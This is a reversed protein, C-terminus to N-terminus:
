PQKCVAAGAGVANVANWTLNGNADQSVYGAFWMDTGSSTISTPATLPTQAVGKISVQMSPTDTGSFAVVCLLFSGAKDVVGAASKIWVTETKAPCGICDLDLRAISDSSTNSSTTQSGTTTTWDLAESNAEACNTYHCDAHNGDATRGTYSGGTKIFHTDMDTLSLWSITALIDIGGTAGGPTWTVTAVASAFKSGESVIVYLSNVGSFVPVDNITYTVTEDDNVTVAGVIAGGQQSGM